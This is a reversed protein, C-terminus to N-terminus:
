LSERFITPIIQRYAFAMVEPPLHEDTFYAHACSAKPIQLSGQQSDHDEPRIQQSWPKWHAHFACFIQESYQNIPSGTNYIHSPVSKRSNM